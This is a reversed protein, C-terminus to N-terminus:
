RIKIDGFKAMHHPVNNHTKRRSPSSGANLKLGSIHIMHPKQLMTYTFNSEYMNEEKQVMWKGDCIAIAYKGDRSIYIPKGDMISDSVSYETFLNHYKKYVDHNGGSM